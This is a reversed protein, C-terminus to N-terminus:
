GFALRNACGVVVCAVVPLADPPWFAALRDARSLWCRSPVAHTRHTRAVTDAVPLTM